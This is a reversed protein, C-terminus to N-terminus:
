LWNKYNGVRGGSRFGRDRFNAVYTIVPVRNQSSMVSKNKRFMLTVSSLIHHM